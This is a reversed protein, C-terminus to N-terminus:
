VSTFKSLNEIENMGVQSFSDSLKFLEIIGDKYSVTLINKNRMENPNFIIKIVPSFGNNKITTINHIKKKNTLIGFDIEGRSNGSVIVSPKYPSWTSYTYYDSDSNSKNENKSCIKCYFYNLEEKDGHYLRLSGDYSTTVFLNKLFYNFNISTVPSFHREYKHKLANTYIKEYKPRLKLFEEMTLNALRRDKCIKEFSNKMDSVDKDKMNSIFIRVDNRWVVGRKDMFIHDHVKGSDFNPKNFSCKYIGGDYGGVRFDCSEFPNDVFTTPNIQLINREIKHQLSYGIM